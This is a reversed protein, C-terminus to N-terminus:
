EGEYGADALAARIARDDLETGRVMVLKADLDVDVAGVGGIQSIAQEVSTRCHECSMGPVRYTLTDAM